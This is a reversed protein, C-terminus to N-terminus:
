LRALMKREPRAGLSHQGGEDASRAAPRGWVCARAALACGQAHTPSVYSLAVSETANAAVGEWTSGMGLEGRGRLAGGGLRAVVELSAGGLRAVVEM